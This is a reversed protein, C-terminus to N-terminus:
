GRGRNGLASKPMGAPYPDFGEPVVVSFGVLAVRDVKCVPVGLFADIVQEGRCKPCRFRVMLEPAPIARSPHSLYIVRLDAM